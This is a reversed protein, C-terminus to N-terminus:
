HNKQQIGALRVFFDPFDVTVRRKKFLRLVISEVVLVCAEMSFGGPFRERTAKKTRKEWFLKIFRM